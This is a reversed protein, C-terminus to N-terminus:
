RGEMAAIAEALAVLYILYKPEDIVVASRAIEFWWNIAAGDPGAM